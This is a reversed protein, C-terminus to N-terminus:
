HPVAMAFDLLSNFRLDILENPFPVDPETSPIFVSYMGANRAFRMDSLTNGVMISKSFDIQPFDKKAQLAMGPNPKRNPSDDNMDACYYIKDIRGCQNRLEETMYAHISHLDELTMLQKAISRQNTAVIVLGFIGSLIKIAEQAGESFIFGDVSLVYEGKKEVNIVGDRDLFLTWTKDIKSLDLM